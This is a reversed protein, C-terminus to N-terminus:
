LQVTYYCEVFSGYVTAWGIVAVAVSAIDRKPSRPMMIIQDLLRIASKRDSFENGRTTVNWIHAYSNPLADLTNYRILNM